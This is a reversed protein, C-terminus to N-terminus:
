SACSTLWALCDDIARELPYPPEGALDFIPDMPVPYDEVMSGLRTSQILFPEGRVLSIADGVRALATMLPLPMSRAPRGAVKRSFADVWARLDTMRDGVYFVKGDIRDGPARLIALMQFAVNKVYGYGRLCSRTPHLYIGRKMAEVM